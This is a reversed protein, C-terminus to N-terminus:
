NAPTKRNLRAYIKNHDIGVRHGGEPSHSGNIHQKNGSAAAVDYIYESAQAEAMGNDILKELLQNQGTTQCAKVITVIRSREANVAQGPEASRLSQIVQVATEPSAQIAEVDLDLAKAVLALPSGEASTPSQRRLAIIRDGLDAAQAEAEEPTIDFALALAGSATMTQNSGGLAALQAELQRIKGQQQIQSQFLKPDACAVSKLKADKDTAFGWGIAEDAGMFTDGRDLLEAIEEATKGTAAVYADVMAADIVDINQAYDKIEQATFFGIMLSAARHTMITAGVGMTRTDGAMMIVTAISAAMGTIRVHVNARHNRLYNYIRIGSAVDGGPSNIELDIDDLEGLAEIEDIFERAPKDGMLDNIWDPAWDSGIPKDIVVQARRTDGAAAKATFWKM